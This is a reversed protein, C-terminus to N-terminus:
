CFRFVECGKEELWAYVEDHNDISSLTSIVKTGEFLGANQYFALTHGDWKNGAIHEKHALWQTEFGDEDALKVLLKGKDMSGLINVQNGNIAYRQKWHTWKMRMFSEASYHETRSFRGSHQRWLHCIEAVPIVQFGQFFLRFAMHYDEPYVSHDFGGARRFDDTRIMWCPSPIVCERWIHQWHDNKICRENLWNEYFMTGTGCNEDPFFQVMGTAVSPTTANKLADYLGQIKNKPMLDDADMRTIYEGQAAQLLDVNASILGSGSAIVRTFRRDRQVFQTIIEESNDTSADNLLLCEWDSFSQQEISHLCDHLFPAANKVPVLVSVAPM